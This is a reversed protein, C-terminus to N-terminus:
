PSGWTAEHGQRALVSRQDSKVTDEPVGGPKWLTWRRQRNRGNAVVARYRWRKGLDHDLQPRGTSGSVPYGIAMLGQGTTGSRHGVYSREAHQEFLETGITGVIAERQGTPGPAIAEMSGVLVSHRPDHRVPLLREVARGPLM